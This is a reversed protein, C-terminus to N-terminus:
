ARYGIWYIVYRDKDLLVKSDGFHGTTLMCFGNKENTLRTLEMCGTEKDHLIANMGFAGAFKIAEEYSMKVLTLDKLNNKM